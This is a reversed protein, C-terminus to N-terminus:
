PHALQQADQDTPWGEGSYDMFNDIPDLGPQDPCTDKGVPCANLIYSAEAPTDDILDGDGTCSEGMFTHFLGFWHGIEHVSIEGIYTKGDFRGGPVSYSQLTCGDLMQSVSGPVANAGPVTCAGGISPDMNTVYWLNLTAYNGKRSSALHPRWNPSDYGRAVDDDVIRDIGQLTFSIDHPAFRDQLVAIQAELVSNDLMDESNTSNIIAHIYVPVVINTEQRRGLTARETDRLARITSM